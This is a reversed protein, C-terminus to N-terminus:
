PDFPINWDNDKQNVIIVQGKMDTLVLVALDWDIRVARVLSQRSLDM